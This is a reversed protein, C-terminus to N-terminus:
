ALHMSSSTLWLSLYCATLPKHDALASANKSSLLSRVAHTCRTTTHAFQKRSLVAALGSSQQICCESQPGDSVLLGLESLRHGWLM